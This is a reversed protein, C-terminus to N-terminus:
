RKVTSEKRFQTILKYGCIVKSSLLSWKGTYVKVIGQLLTNLRNGCNKKTLVKMRVDRTNVKKEHNEIVVKKLLWSAKKIEFKRAYQGFKYLVVM